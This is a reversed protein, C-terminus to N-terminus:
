EFISWASAIGDPKLYQWEDCVSTCAICVGRLRRDKVTAAVKRMEAAFRKWHNARAADYNLEYIEDFLEAADALHSKPVYARDCTFNLAARECNLLRSDESLATVKCMHDAALSYIPKEPIYKEGLYDWIVPASGWGNRHESWHRVSKGFLLYLDSTSM